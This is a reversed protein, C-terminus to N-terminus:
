HIVGWDSGIGVEVTLPVSLSAAGQMLGQASAAVQEAASTDAEIILEDHVQLLLRAHNSQQLKAHVQIMARKIIDAASGQLPANIAARESFARLNPNKAQIDKVYIRRGFLTQVYGHTRAFDKTEEMYDQIGPYQQFYAKIYAAADSRTIGLRVALGHASIGYIIGFNITKAKRRLDDSVADLAVGFMQSATIAHIDDGNRFATKLVEIDAMHALLRLEIQSYDASILQKGEGAIFAQRIRRGELSRIPINQLNPDSSALRGTTTTAMAYSTHVRGSHPSIAKPLSDTYTSKLKSLHRWDLVLKAIHHGQAYLSELTEADTTYAGSKASKKGGELGLKDFLIEGLQKPSSILFAGGAADHIERELQAMRIAFEASIGRLKEADIEIGAMEMDALIRMLPREINEYVGVVKQALMQPRLFQYLRLTFDADEAAYNTAEAIAIQSFNKAKKGTGVVQKFAIMQHNFHKLALADLGQRNLGASTVYSMLMTDALPAIKFGYRQLITLDYKMNHGIKLISNDALAPQLLARVDNLSMQNPLLSLTKVPADFLGGQAENATNEPAIDETLVEGEPVHQIPIYGAKGVHVALSIGVLKASQAHLGTTETDIALVGKARADNLFVALQAPTTITQYDTQVVRIDTKALTNESLNLASDDPTTQATQLGLKKGLTHFNQATLFQALAEKDYDTAAMEELTLPLEVDCKLTVLERSLRANDAHAILSERRKPQKIENVNELINELSGFRVILEAATKPGIGPVGPVNDVSDGILAQAEIVKNPPVGFKEIVEKEGIVRNKMPDFMQVQPTVLQMLDKDSSVVVVQYGAKAAHQAYTAISDDAEVNQVEVQAINLAKTAQKVLAFQPILDEPTADRNAKYDAYLANRFTIRSADFVVAIADYQMSRKLKLMMNIFGYVAGVPTGDKRTLPPMAHYARFIYGSGDVLLIKKPSHPTESALDPMTASQSKPTNM